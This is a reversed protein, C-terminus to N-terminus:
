LTAVALGAMCGEFNGVMCYIRVTPTSGLGLGFGQCIMMVNPMEKLM